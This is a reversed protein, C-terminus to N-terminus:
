RIREFAEPTILHPFRYPQDLVRMVGMTLSFCLSFLLTTFILAPRQACHYVAIAILTM